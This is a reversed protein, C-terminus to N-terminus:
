IPSLRDKSGTYSSYKSLSASVGRNNASTGLSYSSVVGLTFLLLRLDDSFYNDLVYGTFM